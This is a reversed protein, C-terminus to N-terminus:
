KSPSCNFISGSHGIIVACSNVGLGQGEETEDPGFQFPLHDFQNSVKRMVV